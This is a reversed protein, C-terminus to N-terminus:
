CRRPAFVKESLLEVPEGYRQRRRVGVQGAARSGERVGLCQASRRREDRVPRRAPAAAQHCSPRAKLSPLASQSQKAHFMARVSPVTRCSAGVEGPRKVQQRLVAGPAAGAHRVPHSCRAVRPV